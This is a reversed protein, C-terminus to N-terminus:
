EITIEEEFVLEGTNDLVTDDVVMSIKAGYPVNLLANEIAQRDSNLPIRITHKAVITKVTSKTYTVSIPM